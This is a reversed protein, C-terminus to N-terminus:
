IKSQSSVSKLTNPFKTSLNKTIMSKNPSISNGMTPMKTSKMTLPKFSSFNKFMKMAAAQKFMMKNAKIKNAKELAETPRAFPASVMMQGAVNKGFSQKAGFGMSRGIIKAGNFLTRGLTALFAQKELDKMSEM